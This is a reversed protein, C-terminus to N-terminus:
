KVEVTRQTSGRPVDVTRPIKPFTQLFEEVVERYNESTIKPLQQSFWGFKSIREGGPWHKHSLSPCVDWTAAKIAEKTAHHVMEATWVSRGLIHEIYEHMEGFECLLTGSEASMLAEIPFTKAEM